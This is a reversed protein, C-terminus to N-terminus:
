EPKKKMKEVTKAARFWGVVMLVTGSLLLGGVLGAFAGVVAFFGDFTVLFGVLAGIVVSALIAAAQILNDKWRLAPVGGVTEAVLNYADLADDGPKPNKDEEM